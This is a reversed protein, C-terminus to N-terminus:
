QPASPAPTPAPSASPDRTEPAPAAPPPEDPLITIGQSADTPKPMAPEARAPAAAPADLRSSRAPNRKVIEARGRLDKLIKELQQSKLYREITERLMDISPPRRKRM